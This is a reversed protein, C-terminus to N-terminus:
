FAERTEMDVAIVEGEAEFANAQSGSAWVVGRERKTSPAGCNLRVSAFFLLRGLKFQM